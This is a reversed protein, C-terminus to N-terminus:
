WGAAQCVCVCVCVRLLHPPHPTHPTTPSHPPLSHTLAAAHAHYMFDKIIRHFPSGKYGLPIDNKRYEGTCLQRFNEATKPVVDAFLQCWWLRCVVLVCVCLWPPLMLSPRWDPSPSHLRNGGSPPLPHLYLLLPHRQQLPPAHPTPPTVEMVIRGAPQGGINIDFFVVPNSPNNVAPHAKPVGPTSNFVVSPSLLACM